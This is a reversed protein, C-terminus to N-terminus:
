WRGNRSMCGFSARIHLYIEAFTAVKRLYKSGTGLYCETAWAPCALSRPLCFLHATCARSVKSGQLRAQVVELNCPEQSWHLQACNWHVDISVMDCCCFLGVYSRTVNIAQFFVLWCVQLSSQSGRGPLWVKASLSNCPKRKSMKLASIIRYSRFSTGELSNKNTQFSVKTAKYSILVLDEQPALHRTHCALTKLSTKEAVSTRGMCHYM